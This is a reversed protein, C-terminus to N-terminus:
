TVVAVLQERVRHQVPLVESDAVGPANQVLVGVVDTREVIVHLAGRRHQGGSEPTRVAPDRRRSWRTTMWPAPVAPMPMASMITSTMTRSPSDKSSALRRNQAVSREPSIVSSGAALRRSKWTGYARGAASTAPQDLWPSPMLRASITRFASGVMNIPVDVWGAANVSCITLCSADLSRGMMM